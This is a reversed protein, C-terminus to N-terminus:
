KNQNKSIELLKKRYPLIEMLELPTKGWTNKHTVLVNGHSFWLKYLEVLEEDMYKMNIIYQLPVRGKEDLQNIDAGREILIRCLEVTQPLDHKIRSLLIHLLNESCENVGCVDAGKDLLFMSIRYREEPVNNSLSYFLLNKENYLKTEDGDKYVAAFDDYKKLKAILSIDM